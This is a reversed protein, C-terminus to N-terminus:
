FRPLFLIYTAKYFSVYCFFNKRKWNNRYNFPKSVTRNEGIYCTNGFNDEGIKLHIKSMDIVNVTENKIKKTAKYKLISTIISIYVILYAVIFCLFYLIKLIHWTDPYNKAIDFPTIAYPFILSNASLIPLFIIALLSILLICSLFFGLTIYIIKKL